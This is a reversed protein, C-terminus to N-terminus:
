GGGGDYHTQKTGDVMMLLMMVRVIKNKPFKNRGDPTKKRAGSRGNVRTGGLQILDLIGGGTTRRQGLKPDEGTVDDADHSVTGASEVCGKVSTHGPWVGDIRKQGEMM